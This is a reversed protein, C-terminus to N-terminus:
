ICYIIDAKTGLIYFLLGVMFYKNEVMIVRNKKACCIYIGFCVCWFLFLGICRHQLWLSGLFPSFLLSFLLFFFNSAGHAFWPIMM